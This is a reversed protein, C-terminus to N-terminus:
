DLSTAVTPFMKPVGKTSYSETGDDCKKKIDETDQFRRGPLSVKNKKSLVLRWESDFSPFLMPKGNWQILFQKVSLAKPAPSDLGQCTVTEKDLNMQVAMARISLRRDSHVSNRVEEANEGTSQTRIPWRKNMMNWTGAVRKSSNRCSLWLQSKWLKGGYTKSLM